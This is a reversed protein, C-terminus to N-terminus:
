ELDQTAHLENEGPLLFQDTCELSEQSYESEFCRVSKGKHPLKDCFRAFVVSAM